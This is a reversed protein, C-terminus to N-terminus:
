PSCDLIQWLISVSTFYLGAIELWMNWAYNKNAYFPFNHKHKAQVCKVLASNTIKYLTGYQDQYVNTSAVFSNNCISIYRESALSVIQALESQIIVLISRQM